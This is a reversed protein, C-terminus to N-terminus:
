NRATVRVSGKMSEVAQAASGREKKADSVGDYLVNGKEDTKTIGVIEISYWVKMQCKGKEAVGQGGISWTYTTTSTLDPKSDPSAPPPAEARTEKEIVNRCFLGNFGSVSFPSCDGGSNKKFKAMADPDAGINAVFTGKMQIVPWGHYETNVTKTFSKEPGYSPEKTWGSAASADVAVQRLEVDAYAIPPAQAMTELKAVAQDNKLVEGLDVGMKKMMEDAKALILQEKEKESLNKDLQAEYADMQESLKMEQEETLNMAKDVAGMAAKAGELAKAADDLTALEGMNAKGKDFFVVAIKAKGLYSDRMYNSIQLKARLTSGSVEEAIPEVDMRFKEGEMSSQILATDAYDITSDASMVVYKRDTDKGVAEAPVQFEVDFVDTVMVAGASSQQDGSATGTYEVYDFDKMRPKAVLKARLRFDGSFDKLRIQYICKGVVAGDFGEAKADPIKVNSYFPLFAQGAVKKHELPEWEFIVEQSVLNGPDLNKLDLLTLPQDLNKDPLLKSTAERLTKRGALDADVFKCIGPLVNAAHKIAEDTASEWDKLFRGHLKSDNVTVEATVVGNEVKANMELPKMLMEYQKKTPMPPFKPIYAQVFSHKGDGSSHARYFDKAADLCWSAAKRFINCFHEARTITDVETLGAADTNGIYMPNHPFARSYALILFQAFDPGMDAPCSTADTESVYADKTVYVHKSELQELAKHRASDAQYYGGYQNVVPHVHIDNIYHTVWGLAFAKEAPTKATELIILTLKGTDTYHAEEGVSQNPTWSLTGGIGHQVGTIDPGQAGALYAPKNDAVLKRCNPSLYDRMRIATYIHSAIQGAWCSSSALAAVALCLATTRFIRM